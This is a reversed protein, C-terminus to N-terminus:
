GDIFIDRYVGHMRVIGTNKELKHLAVSRSELWPDM